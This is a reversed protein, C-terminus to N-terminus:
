VPQDDWAEEAELTWAVEWAGLMGKAAGIATTFFPRGAPRPVKAAEAGLNAILHLVAGGALRWAVHLTRRGLVEFRGAHGATGPLRPVVVDRRLRILERYFALWGASDEHGLASWDLRSDLFTRELGPDPMAAQVSADAFRAFKGFERRRGERVADNLGDGLDCFFLFPTRAFFEEGMFLMPIGPALLYIAAAARLAAEPALLRIREGFARNGLQDHSQLFSVFSQPPLHGSTEGRPAHDRFPSAEGQYAFGEALCRGLHRVPDDAYDAYYGDTEGTALVHLAHHIDDNWQAVYRDPGLYRAQNVDNELVLHVKREPGFAARVREALETLIHRASNDAIAHVADLRLGDLRYEELWYLANHIFFERVDRSGPGDFNIAAGWPTHHSASFFDSAYAHLYNGEPGFHNYVVDLLVMIGRAHAAQVLAKLQEPRGYRSDPAFPLVGDYGWNWRGPFDGIPMLEVATVGLGALYDLRGTVGDFDGQPTFSGVHLEYIVAEEWPRGSWGADQWDFASPDVVESAGHVDDPNFRSAPDAVRLGDKVEFWYRTGAGAGPVVREFWGGARGEMALVAERAEDRVGLVVRECDPAWLRFRVGDGALQAGFPMDHRSKM